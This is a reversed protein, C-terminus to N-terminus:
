RSLRLADNQTDAWARAAREAQAASAGRGTEIYYRGGSFKAGLQDLRMALHPTSDIYARYSRGSKSITFRYYRNEGDPGRTIHRISYDQFDSQRKLRNGMAAIASSIGRLRGPDYEPLNTAIGIACCAVMCIGSFLRLNEATIIKFVGEATM